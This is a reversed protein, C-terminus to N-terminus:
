RFRPIIDRAIRDIVAINDEVEPQTLLIGVQDVGRAALQEIKAGVKDADGVVTLMDIERETVHRAAGGPGGEAYTAKLADIYEDELGLATLLSRPAGAIVHAVSSKVRDIIASMDDVVLCTIWSVMKIEDMSRGARQAGREVASFAYDLGEPSVLAGVVAGDAVEGAGALTLAGRGAIYIPLNPRPPTWELRIGDAVVYESRYRVTEGRLLGRVIQAMEKCRQAAATQEHGMPLLLERRNGAGIGLNARGGTIEDLTAIARAVQAPHRTYPNTVGIMMQIRTTARGWEAMVLFPDRYFTQDPIWVMDYGMDEGVQILRISEQLDARPVAGFGFKM